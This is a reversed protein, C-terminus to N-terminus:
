SKKREQSVGQERARKLENYVDLAKRVNHSTQNGSQGADIGEGKERVARIDKDTAM